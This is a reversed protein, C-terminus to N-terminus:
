FHFRDGKLMSWQQAMKCRLTYYTEGELYSINENEYFFNNLIFKQVIVKVQM